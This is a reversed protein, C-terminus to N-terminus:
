KGGGGKSVEREPNFRSMRAETVSAFWMCEPASADTGAPCDVTAAVLTKNVQVCLRSVAQVETWRRLGMPEEEGEAGEAGEEGDEWRRTGGALLIRTAEAAAKRMGPGPRLVVCYDSHVLSPHNQYLVLDAGYQLGSRPLWGARRFHAHAACRVYFYSAEAGEAGLRFLARWLESTSLRVLRAAADAEEGLPTGREAEAHVTLCDLTHAMYFAEEPSLRVVVPTEADGDCGGSADDGLVNRFVPVGAAAARPTKRGLCVRELFYALQRTCAMWVAGRALVGRLDSAALWDVCQQPAPQRAAARRKGKKFKTRKVPPM